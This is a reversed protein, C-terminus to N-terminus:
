SHGIIFVPSMLNLLPISALKRSVPRHIFNQCPKVVYRCAFDTLRRNRKFSSLFQLMNVGHFISVAPVAMHNVVHPRGVINEVASIGQASAAHALMLKGNADGICYLHPVVEGGENKTLIQMHENVAVFGRNTEIGRDELGMDKTNPVRGTAVMCADVELTEM